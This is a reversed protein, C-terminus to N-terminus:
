WIWHRWGATSDPNRPTHLLSSGNSLAVQGDAKIQIATNKKQINWKIIYFSQPASLSKQSIHASSLLLHSCFLSALYFWWCFTHWKKQIGTYAQKQECLSFPAAIWNPINDRTQSKTPSLFPLYHTDLCLFKDPTEVTAVWKFNSDFGM